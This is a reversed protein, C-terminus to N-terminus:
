PRPMGYVDQEAGRGMMRANRSPPALWARFVRARMILASRASAADGPVIEGPQSTVAAVSIRGSGVNVTSDTGPMM